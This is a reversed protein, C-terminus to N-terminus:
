KITRPKAAPKPSKRGVRANEKNYADELEAMRQQAADIRPGFLKELEKGDVPTMTIPGAKVLLTQGTSDVFLQTPDAALGERDDLRFVGHASHVGADHDEGQCDVVRAVMGARVHDFTVFALKRKKAPDGLLRPLMRIIARPAYTEPVELAPNAVAPADMSYTQNTLLVKGNRLGEELAVELYDPRNAAAPVLTTISTKWREDKLNNSIFMSNQLRRARGDNEFTWGRERIRIGHRGEWDGTAQYIAVFGITKGDREFKLFEEPVVAKQLKEADLSKLLQIGDELAVKMEADDVNNSLLRISGLVSYFLPESRARLQFPGNYLLVYYTQPKAEILAELRLRKIGDRQFSAALVAGPRGAIQQTQQSLISIDSFELELASSIRKLMDEMSSKKTTSTQKLVIEQTLSAAVEQSMQLLTVGHREPVRQRLVQWGSPPQISYGYTGDVCPDALGDGAAPPAGTQGSAALLLIMWLTTM